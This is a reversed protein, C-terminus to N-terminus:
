EKVFIRYLAGTLKQLNTEEEKAEIYRRRLPYLAQAVGDTARGKVPAPLTRPPSVRGAALEAGNASGNADDATLVTASRERGCTM